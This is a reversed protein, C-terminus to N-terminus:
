PVQSVELMYVVNSKSKLDLNIQHM